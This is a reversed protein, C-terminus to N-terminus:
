RLSTGLDLLSLNICGSEWLAKLSFNLRVKKGKSVLWNRFSVTTRKGVTIHIKRKVVEPSSETIGLQYRKLSPPASTYWDAEHQAWTGFAQNGYEWELM